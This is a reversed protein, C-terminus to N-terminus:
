LLEACAQTAAAGQATQLCELYADTADGGPATPEGGAQPLSSAGGLIGELVASGAGLEQLLADLPEAADPAEITQPENIEGLTLSFDVTVTGTAGPTGPPPELVLSAEIRRLIDDDTGSFVDFRAEEVIGELQSLQAPDVQEAAPGANESLKQLDDVLKPVDAEGSVHITEAGEVDETGENELGSLWATPDIGLSKLFNGTDGGTQQENQQQLQLFRQAFTDFGEQPVQYAKDQYSVYAAQGTSILGGAFDIEEGAAEAEVSGEIDFLPIDGEKSQFPGGLSTKVDGGQDGEANLDISVEFTGSQVDTENNFTRELVAQPDEGNDGGEDDGGCAAVSLAVLAAILLALLRTRHLTTLEQTSPRRLAAPYRLTM